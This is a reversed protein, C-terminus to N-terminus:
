PKPPVGSEITKKRRAMDFYYNVCLRLDLPLLNSNFGRPFQPDREAFILHGGVVGEISTTTLGRLFREAGLEATVGPYLGRHRRKSVPDQLVKRHNEVWVRYAGPGAGFHYLWWGRRMTLQLQGTVPAVLTLMEEKKPAGSLFVDTPFHPDLFPAISGGAYASWTFGPSVQWRLGKSVVYRFSGSFSFRGAADQSYDADEVFRSYGLGGGVGGKHPVYGPEAALCVSAVTLLAPLAVSVCRSRPIM